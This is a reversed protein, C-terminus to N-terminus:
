YNETEDGLITGTFSNVANQKYYQLLAFVSNVISPQEAKVTNVVDQMEFSASNGVCNSKMDESHSQKM